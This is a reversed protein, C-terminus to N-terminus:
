RRHPLKALSHQALCPRSKNIPNVENCRRGSRQITSRKHLGSECEAVLIACWHGLMGGTHEGRDPKIPAAPAQSDLDLRDSVVEIGVSDAIRLYSTRWVCRQAHGTNGLLRIRFQPNDLTMALRSECGAINRHCLRAGNRIVRLRKAGPMSLKIPVLFADLM